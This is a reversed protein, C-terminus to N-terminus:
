IRIKTRKLYKILKSMNKYYEIEEKDKEIENLKEILKNDTYHEIVDNDFDLSKLTTYIPNAESKGTPSFLITRIELLNGKSDKIPQDEYNKIM